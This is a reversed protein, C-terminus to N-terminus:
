NNTPTSSDDQNRTRTCEGLMTQVQEPLHCDATLQSIQESLEETILDASKLAGWCAVFNELSRGEPLHILATPLIGAAIPEIDRAAIMAAKVQPSTILSNIFTGWDPSPRHSIDWTEIEDPSADRVRLVQQWSGDSLQTPLDEVIRQTRPNHEPREITTVPFCSHEAACEDSIPFPFSINPFTSRLQEKVYPYQIGGETQLLYIM